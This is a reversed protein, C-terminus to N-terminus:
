NKKSNKDGCFRIKGVFEGIAVNKFKYSAKNSILRASIMTIVEFPKLNNERLTTGTEIIDVIVDSLGLVPALEISGNLKIIEIERSKKAYYDKTINLFKTAVTLTRETNDYFNERGAVCIKCKGINLDLLEYVNPKYELIIDEGVIGIDAVGREVYIAVDSPKAWFYWTRSKKSEFILKRDDKNKPPCEFGSKELLDCVNIGLRGKPLAIKIM